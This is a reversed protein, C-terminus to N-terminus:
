GREVLGVVNSIPDGSGSVSAARAASALAAMARALCATLDVVGAEVGAEVRALLEGALVVEFGTVRLVAPELGDGM